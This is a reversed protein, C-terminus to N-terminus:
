MPKCSPWSWLWVDLRCCGMKTRCSIAVLIIVRFDRQSLFKVWSTLQIPSLFKLDNVALTRSFLMIIHYSRSNLICYSNIIQSDLHREKRLNLSHLQCYFFFQFYPMQHIMPIFYIHPILPVTTSHFRTMWAQHQMPEHRHITLIHSIVCGCRFLHHLVQFIQIHVEM